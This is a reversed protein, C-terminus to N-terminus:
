ILNFISVSFPYYENSDVGAHIRIGTEPRPITKHTHGYFHFSGKYMGNWEYLPYHCAVIRHKGYMFEFIQNELIEYKEKKCPSPYAHDHNGKIFIHYGNLRKVLNEFDSKGGKWMFDGLHITISNEDVESNHRNIIDENMEIISEYPRNCLKIINRHSYHEDSTIFLKINKNINRM